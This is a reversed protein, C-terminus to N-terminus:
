YGVGDHLWTSICVVLLIRENEFILMPILCEAEYTM